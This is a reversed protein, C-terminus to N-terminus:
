PAAGLATVQRELEDLGGAFFHDQAEVWILRKPDAVHAYFAEMEPLSGYEDHASQIFVKPVTCWALVGMPDRNAPFGLAILREADPL